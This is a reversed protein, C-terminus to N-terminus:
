CCCLSGVARVCAARRACPGAGCIGVGRGLLTTRGRRDIRVAVVAAGQGKLRFPAIADRIYGSLDDVKRGSLVPRPGLGAMLATVILVWGGLILACDWLPWRTRETHAHRRTRDKGHHTVVKEGCPRRVSQRDAARGATRRACDCEDLHLSEAVSAPPCCQLTRGDLRQPGQRQASSSSNAAWRAACKPRNCPRLVKVVHRSLMDLCSEDDCLLRARQCSGVGGEPMEDVRTSRARM